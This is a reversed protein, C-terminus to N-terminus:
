QQHQIRYGCVGLIHLSRGGLLSQKEWADRGAQLKRLTAPDGPL